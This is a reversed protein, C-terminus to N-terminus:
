VVQSWQELDQLFKEWRGGNMAKIRAWQKSDRGLVTRAWMLRAALQTDAYVPVNGGAFPQGGGLEFWAAIKTMAAELEKWKTEGKGTGEPAIDELKSGLKQERTRRFYEASRPNLHKCVALVVVSFLPAQCTSAVASSFAAQLVRSGDPFLRVGATPYTTDLYESITASDSIFKGTNPDHIIPVTYHPTIGDAKVDSAPAGLRKCLAEIDPYEVWETRYKLGKLNLAFSASGFTFNPMSTKRAYTPRHVYRTIWTKPSWAKGEETKGPVDYFIIDKM